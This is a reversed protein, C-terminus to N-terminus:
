KDWWVRSSITLNKYPEFNKSNYIRESTPYPWRRPMKKDVTLANSPPTLQPYGTRRYDTYAEPNMFLVIYKQMIIKALSISTSTESIMSNPAQMGYMEFAATVADNYAAAARAPDNPLAAEAEIFKSEAYSMFVVPSNPLLFTQGPYAFGDAQGPNSGYGVSEDESAGTTDVYLNFRPDSRLTDVFFAGMVIDYPRDYMFFQYAPNGENQKTGFPVQMNDDNSILGKDIANLATLYADSRVKALHLALRAKLTYAARTWKDLDGAYIIDDDSPSFLSQSKGLNVIAADIMKFLSDYIAEQKDYKPTLNNEIWADSFPIDGFLDTMIAVSFAMLVQAVGLYHYSKDSEAQEIMRKLDMMPGAYMGWKWVNDVDSQTFNYVDFAIPQNGVGSLQQMWIAAPRSLDGGYQYAISAEITPLVVNYYTKEPNNPDNNLDTDIWKECSSFLFLIIAGLFIKIDTKKM